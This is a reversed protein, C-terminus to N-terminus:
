LYHKTLMEIKKKVINLLELPEIIKMISGGQLVWNAFSPLDDNRFYMKLWNDDYPENHTYGWWLKSDAIHRLAEKHILLVIKHIGEANGYEDFFTPLSILSDSSYDIDTQTAQLIRDIRFDRYENRLTCFAIVHWFYGYFCVGIPKIIRATQENSSTAHYLIEVAKREVLSKQIVALFESKEKELKAMNLVSIQKSLIDIHEKESDRLVSRIKFFASEVERRNIEGGMQEAFKAGYLLATAEGSTLMVPPLHYTEALFYGIGAEAGIPVGAEELARIDRYVTRISIEFRDAIEQATVIKKSQLHILIAQLRDIRNM